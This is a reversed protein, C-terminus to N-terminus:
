SSCEACEADYFSEKKIARDLTRGNKGYIHEQWRPRCVYSHVAGMGWM